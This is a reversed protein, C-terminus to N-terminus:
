SRSSSTPEGEPEYVVTLALNLGTVELLRQVLGRPNVLEFAVGHEAAAQAGVLLAKIASSDAFTLDTLRVRVARRGAVVAKVLLDGVQDADAMDIDGSLSVVVEDSGSEVEVVCTSLQSCTPASALSSSDDM